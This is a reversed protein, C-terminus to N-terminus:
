APAEDLPRRGAFGEEPWHWFRVADEGAMWCLWYRRGVATQAAFDLLGREADRLVIGDEELAALLEKLGTAAGADGSGNGRAAHPRAAALLARARDLQERVRPLAADAEAVTWVRM